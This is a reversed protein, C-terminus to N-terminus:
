EKAGKSLLFNIVDDHCCIEACALPTWNDVNRAELDAGKFVLYEVVLLHGQKCAYHIPTWGDWGKLSQDYHLVEICYEVIQLHGNQAAFHIPADGSQTRKNKNVIGKEFLWQVSSLKGKECAKFIDEEFDDPKKMVPPFKILPKMTYLYNFIKPDTKEDCYTFLSRGNEDIENVNKIKSEILFKVSRFQNKEVAKFINTENGQYKFIDYRYQQYIAYFTSLYVFINNQNVSEKQQNMFTEYDDYTIHDLNDHDGGQKKIEKHIREVFHNM